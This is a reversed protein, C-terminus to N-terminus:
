KEMVIRYMLPIINEKGKIMYYGNEQKELNPFCNYYSYPYETFDTMRLGQKLLATITESFPHNWSYSKAKINADRDAYSGEEEEIIVGRNFYSYALEFSDFEYMMYAPHFEAICFKGGPKLHRAVTEAWPDLDPIWCITGYSTFVLDFQEDGLLKSTDYVNGEIFRAKVELEATLSRAERIAADSLDIGTVEAGMRAWSITDQGFHCQLHLLSKGKVDGFAELEAPNLSNKGAKFAENDYFEAELHIPTKQNWLAKNGELYNENM